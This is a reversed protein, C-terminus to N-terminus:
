HRRPRTREEQSHRQSLASRRASTFYNDLLRVFLRERKIICLLEPEMWGLHITPLPQIARQSPLKWSATCTDSPQGGGGGGMPHQGNNNRMTRDPEKRPNIPAAARENRGHGKGSQNGRRSDCTDYSGVREPFRNVKMRTSKCIKILEM